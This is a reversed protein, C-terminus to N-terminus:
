FNKLNMEFDPCNIFQDKMDVSEESQPISSDGCWHDKSCYEYNYPDDGGEAVSWWSGASHFKRHICIDCKM